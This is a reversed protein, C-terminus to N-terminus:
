TIKYYILEVTLPSLRADRPRPKLCCNLPCPMHLMPENEILYICDTEGGCYELILNLFSYIVFAEYIDRILEAYLGNRGLTLALASSIAYVPCIFLIRIVYVQIGPMTYNCLHYLIHIISILISVSAFVWGCILADDSHVFNVSISVQEQM